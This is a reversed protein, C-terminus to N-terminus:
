KFSAPERALSDARQLCCGYRILWQVEESKLTGQVALLDFLTLRSQVSSFPFWGQTNIPLVSASASAWTSQGGSEFLQSILFSGSEPFSQLCSSFPCYLKIHNCPTVSEISMLKHLSQSNNIALSDQHGGTWSTAFLRVCSLLQVSIIRVPTLQYKVTTKIQKREHNTINFM